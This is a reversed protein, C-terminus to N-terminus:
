AFIRALSSYGETKKQGLHSLFINVGQSGYIEARSQAECLGLSWSLRLPEEEEMNGDEQGHCGLRVGLTPMEMSKRTPSALKRGCEDDQM